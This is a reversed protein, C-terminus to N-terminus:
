PSGGQGDGHQRRKAYPLLLRSGAALEHVMRKLTAITRWAESAVWAGMSAPDFRRRGREVYVVRGLVNSPDVHEERGAANDGRLVLYRPAGHLGVIRRVRHATLGRPSRYLVVEGRRLSGPGVPEMTVWEGDRIAPHMSSGPAQFRVPYGEELMRVCLPTFLAERV